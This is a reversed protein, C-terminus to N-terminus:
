WVGEAGTPPPAAPGQGTGLRVGGSGGGPYDKQNLNIGRRRRLSRLLLSFPLSRPGPHSDECRGLEGLREGGEWSLLGGAGRNRVRNSPM